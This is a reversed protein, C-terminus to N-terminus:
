FPPQASSYLVRVPRFSPAPVRVSTHPIKHITEVSRARSHEIVKATPTHSAPIPLCPSTGEMAPEGRGGM